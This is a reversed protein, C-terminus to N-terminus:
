TVLMDDFTFVVPANTVGSALFTRFGIAGGAQLSPESDTVTFQWNTPEAQGDAWAKLRITTPNTGVVQGHMRIYTNAGYPLGSVATETGIVTQTGNVLRVARLYVTNNTAIRIQCWYETNTSVSRTIFFVSQNSGAALKDSKVRFTFDLDQAIVNQLKVSRSNGAAPVQITGASENVDFNAATGTLTYSGGLDANGWGDVVTRSFTDSAYTSNGGGGSVQINQSFESTNGVADTATATLYQSGTVGSISINFGGNTNTIGSGVFVKGQGYNGGGSDTTKKEAIFIEIKCPKSVVSDGCATGTVSSITASTLVPMNLEQNSGTDGDGTDNPTVGAIATELDIGFQTNNFISNQTITHKDTAIGIIQVGIGNNTIINNPGIRNSKSAAAIQIGFRANPIATNNSSIGIRNNYV